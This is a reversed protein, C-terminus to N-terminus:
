GGEYSEGHMQPPVQIDRDGVPDHARRYPRVRVGGRGERAPGQVAPAETVRSPDRVEVAGRGRVGGPLGEM